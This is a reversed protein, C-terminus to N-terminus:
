HSRQTPTLNPSINFKTFSLQDNNLNSKLTTVVSTTVFFAQYQFVAAPLRAKVQFVLTM